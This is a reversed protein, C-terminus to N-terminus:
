GSCAPDSKEYIVHEGWRIRKTYGHAKCAPWADRCADRTEGGAKVLAGDCCRLSCDRKPPKVVPWGDQWTLAARRLQRKPNDGIAQCSPAKVDGDYAHYVIWDVDEADRVIANHGPGKWRSGASLIPGDHKVFPGMPSTARAVGVAYKHNCWYNGSYFLYYRGGRKVVWPAEILKGEWSQGFNLVAKPAGVKALGSADLEQAIISTDQGNDNRKYYLYKKSGESFVNADIISFGRKALPQGLDQYPGTPSPAHAAGVSMKGTGDLASYYVVFGGPAHHIEPAWFNGTGWPHGAGPFVHGAATWSKMDASQYIPFKGAAGGGTCTLFYQSGHRLVGPDACPLSAGLESELADTDEEAEGDGIPAGAEVFCGGVSLLFSGLLLLTLALLRRM